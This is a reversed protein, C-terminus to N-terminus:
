TNKTKDRKNRRCLYNQPRATSEQQRGPGAVDIFQTSVPTWHLVNKKTLTGPLTQINWFQFHNDASCILGVMVTARRCSKRQISCSHTERQTPHLSSAWAPMKASKQMKCLWSCITANQMQKALPHGSFWTRYTSYLFPWGKWHWANHCCCPIECAETAKWDRGPALVFHRHVAVEQGAGSQKQAKACPSWCTYDVPLPHAVGDSGCLVVEQLVSTMQLTISGAWRFGETDPWLGSWSAPLCLAEWVSPCSCLCALSWM